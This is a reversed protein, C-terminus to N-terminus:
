PCYAFYGLLCKRYRESEPSVKKGNVHPILVIMHLLREIALKNSLPMFIMKLHDRKLPRQTCDTYFLSMDHLPCLSVHSKTTSTSSIAPTLYILPFPLVSPHELFLVFWGIDLLLWGEAVAFLCYLDEFYPTYLVLPFMMYNQYPIFPIWIWSFHCTWPLFIYTRSPLVHGRNALQVWQLHEISVELIKTILDFDTINLDLETDLDRNLSIDSWHLTLSYITMNWFTMYCKLSPSKMNNILDWYRGYFKRLFSKLCERVYGSELFKCSLRTAM